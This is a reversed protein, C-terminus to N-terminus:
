LVKFNVIVPRHDSLSIPPCRYGMIQLTAPNYFMHDIRLTPSLENFTRGIWKGKDLFADNLDGRIKMYTYSGPLDNLDGCVLVPYPSNRIMDAVTDAEAARVSYAYNFKWLFMSSHMPIGLGNKKLEEIYYKDYDSFGFSHMHLFFVRMKKGEKIKVDCQLVNIWETGLHRVAYNEIPYKSFIATGMYIDSGVKNDFCFKYTSYGYALIRKAYPRMSDNGPTYYEPMCVIDADEKKIFALMKEAVQKGDHKEFIGLGHVNWSMIKITGPQQIMDNTGSFNLGFVTIFVKYGLVLTLISCISRLKKNSFLLWFFIFCINAAIVFPLTLNTIALYKVKVPSVYAATYCLASWLVLLLNLILITHSFLRRLLSEKTKV